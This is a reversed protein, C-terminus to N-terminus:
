VAEPEYKGPYDRHGECAHIWWYNGDDDWEEDVAQVGGWCPEGEVDFLVCDDGCDCPSYSPSCPPTSGGVEEKGLPYEAESNSCSM